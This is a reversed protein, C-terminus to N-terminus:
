PSETRVLAALHQISPAHIVLSKTCPVPLCADLRRCGLVSTQWGMEFSFGRPFVLVGPSDEASLEAPKEAAVWGLDPARSPAAAELASAQDELVEEAQVSVPTFEGHHWPIGPGLRWAPNSM